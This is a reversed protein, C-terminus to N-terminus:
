ARSANRYYHGYRYARRANLGRVDNAVVGVVNARTTHLMSLTRQLSRHPTTALAYVLVVADARRAVLSADAVATLAPSDVIVVSFVERMESLVEALKVTALLGGEDDVASGAPLVHLNDINPIQVARKWAMDGRVVETVGPARKVKLLQHNTPRRLDLDVLLTPVGMEAYTTALNVAITSKGEGPEAGAVLILRRAPYDLASELNTRLLRLEDSAPCGKVFVGSGNLSAADLKPILAFAPLGSVRELDEVTHSTVILSEILFPSLFGCLLAAALAWQWRSRVAEEFSDPETLTDLDSSTDQITLDVQNHRRRLGEYTEQVLRYERQVHEPDSGTRLVESFTEGIQTREAGIRAVLSDARQREEFADLRLAAWQAEAGGLFPKLALADQADAIAQLAGLTENAEVVAPHRPMYKSLLADRQNRRRRQEVRIAESAQAVMREAADAEDELPKVRRHASLVEFLKGLEDEKKGMQREIYVQLELDSGRKSRVNQAHYEALLADAFEQVAEQDSGRVTTHIIDTNSQHKRTVSMSAGAQAREEEPMGEFAKVRRLAAKRLKRSGLIELQTEITSRDRLSPLDRGVLHSLGALITSGSRYRVEFSASYSTEARAAIVTTVVHVLLGAGLGILIGFRAYRRLISLTTWVSFESGDVGPDVPVSLRDSVPPPNPSM